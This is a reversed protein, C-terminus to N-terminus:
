GSGSRLEHWAEALATDLEHMPAYGLRRAMGIDLVVAPMEIAKAALYRVPIPMETVLRALEVLRNVSVSKGSGIVLPGVHGARLATQFGAVADRVSVFDRVQTGDGYVEIGRGECAARLVRPVLSDKRAMGPGVVNALRVACGRLGYSASYGSLLMEAAAKTAGYPTLPHPPTNEDIIAQGVNGAVANTSALLVSEV